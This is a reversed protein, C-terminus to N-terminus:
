ANETTNCIKIADEISILINCIVKGLSTIIYAGDIMDVIGLTLLKEMRHNLDRKNINLEKMLFLPTLVRDNRGITIEKLLRIQEQNSFEHLVSEIKVPYPSYMNVYCM